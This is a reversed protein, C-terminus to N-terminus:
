RAEVLLAAEDTRHHAGLSTLRTSAAAVVARALVLLNEDELEGVTRPERPTAAWAALTAAARRLGAADRQLGADAWMLHQLATRSFTPADPGAPTDTDVRDTAVAQGGLAAPWARATDGAAAAGARAGFVAAELLSNSALRNAGHVGTCATEGAAYLGPLSTRGDLDTRVGGMLYHAAPSIPVPERSWDWGRERVVADITPFREGLTLPGLARADLLVPRGGQDAMRAAIARAVVDRPALEGDRHTDYLFRRGDEDVIVAGEGRVAESILFPTGAAGGDPPFGATAEATGVLVTPHFQVFELDAVAAGARIAAAIGDGTAVAPNTTRAYLQGAGGTALVVADAPLIGRCGAILLEVGTVRGAGVVLDVLFAHELVRVDSERLRALLANEIARGTADGGAHLVRARSHAAELGRALAGHDDRDFAVGAAVLESVRAPAETVLVRVAAADGAGAGAALTDRLHLEVDDSADTVAAIGGQACTTNADALGRKTVLTVECGAAQAHLAATIGAIGSGVVVVHTM